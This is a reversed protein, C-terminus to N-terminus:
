ASVKAKLKRIAKQIRKLQVAQVDPHGPIANNDKWRWLTALPIGSAKHLHLLKVSKILNSVEM